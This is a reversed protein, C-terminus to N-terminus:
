HAEPWAQHPVVDHRNHHWQCRLPAAIYSRGGPDEWVGYFRGSDLTDPIYSLDGIQMAQGMVAYSVGRLRCGARACEPMGRCAHHSFRGLDPDFLALAAAEVGLSTLAVETTLDLVQQSDLLPSTARAIESVVALEQNRQAMVTYSDRLQRQMKGFADALEALEDRGRVQPSIDFNGQGIESAASALARVPRIVLVALAPMLLGVLLAIMVLASLLIRWLSARLQANLEARPTEVLLLGLTPQQTAHCRQCTPQNPLAKVYLLSSATMQFDRREAGSAHCPACLPDAIPFRRGVEEPASSFRVQGASNLVRVIEAGPRGASTQIVQEVLSFDNRAMARALNAEILGSVRQSALQSSAVLQQNQLTLILYSVLATGILVVGAVLALLRLGLRPIALTTKRFTVFRKLFTRLQGPRIM